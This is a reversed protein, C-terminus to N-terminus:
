LNSRTNVSLDSSWNNSIPMIEGINVDKSSFEECRSTHLKLEEISWSILEAGELHTSYRTIPKITRIIEAEDKHRIKLHVDVWHVNEVLLIKTVSKCFWSSGLCSSYQLLMHDHFHLKESLKEKLPAGGFVREFCSTFCFFHFVWISLCVILFYNDLRVSEKM